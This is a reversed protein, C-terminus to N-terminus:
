QLIIFNNGFFTLKNKRQHWKEITYTYLVDIYIMCIFALYSYIHIFKRATRCFDSTMVLSIHNWQRHKGKVYLFLIAKHMVYIHLNCFNKSMFYLSEKNNGYLRLGLCNIANTQWDWVVLWLVSCPFVNSKEPTIKDVHWQIGTNHEYYINHDTGTIQTYWFYRTKLLKLM